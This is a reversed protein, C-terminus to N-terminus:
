AEGVWGVRGHTHAAELFAVDGNREIVEVGDEHRAILIDASSVRGDNIGDNSGHM